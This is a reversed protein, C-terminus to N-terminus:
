GVGKQLMFIGKVRKQPTVHQIIISINETKEKLHFM